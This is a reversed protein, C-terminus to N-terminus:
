NLKEPPPNFDASGPITQNVMKLWEKETMETAKTPILSPKRVTLDEVKEVLL